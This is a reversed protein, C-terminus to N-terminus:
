SIIDLKENVMKPGSSPNLCNVTGLPRSIGSSDKLIFGDKCHPIPSYNVNLDNIKNRNIRVATSIPHEMSDLLLKVESEPLTKNILSIFDHNM